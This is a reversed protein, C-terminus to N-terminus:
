EKNYFVAMTHATRAAIRFEEPGFGHELAYGISCDWEDQMGDDLFRLVSDCLMADDSMEKLIEILSM